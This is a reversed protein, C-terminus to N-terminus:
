ISEILLNVRHEDLVKACIGANEFNEHKVFYSQMEMLYKEYEAKEIRMVTDSKGLRFLELAAINKHVAQKLRRLMYTYVTDPNTNVFHNFTTISNTPLVIADPSIPEKNVPLNNKLM